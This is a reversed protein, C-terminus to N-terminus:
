FRFRERYERCAEQLSPPAPERLKQRSCMEYLMSVHRTCDRPRALRPYDGKGESVNGGDLYALWAEINWTPVFILVGEDGSRKQVNTKRCEEDLQRMRQTLGAADGDVFVVLLQNARSRLFTLEEPFRTRVFQEAAGRGGPSKLVRIERSDYGKKELFRRAFVEHQSDECLVVCRVRRAMLGM